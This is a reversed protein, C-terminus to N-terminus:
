DWFSGLKKCANAMYGHALSVCHFMLFHLKLNGAYPISFIADTLNKCIKMKFSWNLHLNQWNFLIQMYKIVSYNNSEMKGSRVYSIMKSTGQFHLQFWPGMKQQIQSHCVHKLFSRLVSNLLHELFYQAMTSLLANWSFFCSGELLWRM